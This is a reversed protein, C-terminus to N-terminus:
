KRAVSKAECPITVWVTTGKGVESSIEITGGMLTALEKCIPLGLGTSNKKGSPTNFREFVHDIVDKAIGCGTDDVGVILRGGLYEFRVRVRGRETHAVANHILNELIRSLNTIDIDVVLEKYINRVEYVVEAKRGEIWANNCIGEVAMAFNCERKTTEVMHADLRSLFLIDNVLNLLYATNTKITEIYATEEAADHDKKFMEASQVVTDLPTRIAYCMNHLFKIKLQEVEQAKETEQKLQQETHKIETVDRCVGEYVTVQGQDDLIPFLLVQLCVRQGGKVRLTTRIDGYLSAASRRDMARMIRMVQPLSEQDTLALCRQQTLEYQAEDMRQFITLMHTEPSYNMIRVGGVQLVYNINKVYNALEDMAARLQKLGRTAEVYTLAADTVERGTAYIGVPHQEDDFVPLCQMEYFRSHANPQQHEPLPKGDPTLAHTAYHYSLIDGEPYFDKINLRRQRVENLTSNFTAQARENMSTIYGDTDCYIMDIMASSFVARYRRMLETTQREKNIEETADRETGMIVTPKGKDSRLVSLVVSFIRNEPVATAADSIHMQLRAEQCKMDVLEKILTLLQELETPWYRRSFANLTMTTQKRADNGYWSISQKEVDYTWISVHCTKLVLALRNIRLRGNHTARRERYQYFIIAIALLVAIFGLAYAVYWLWAPTEDEAEREPYFWKMEIPQLRESAKLAVYAEDIKELLVSDNAMFHYESSPMDVPSLTLNPAHYKRLLWKLSMTNWLIQGNNEASLLQIAMAMDDFPQANLAWGNGEMLHHAFSGNHVIVQQTALDNFNHVAQKHDIPHVVSQTFLHVVTSGYYHVYQDHYDAKMGLMLDSQGNYLDEIAQQKPKLRIEYPIGLEKFIMTLLDVNFGAPHGNEDLFVYPWLDWADEYILPQEETYERLTAVETEGTEASAVTAVAVLLLVMM